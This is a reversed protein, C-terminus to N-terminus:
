VLQLRIMTTIVRYQCPHHWAEDGRDSWKVGIQPPADGDSGMVSVAVQIDGDYPRLMEHLETSTAAASMASVQM